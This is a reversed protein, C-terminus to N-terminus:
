ELIELITDLEEVDNVLFYRCNHKLVEQEFDKQAQSQRGKSSKCEIFSVRCFPMTPSEIIARYTAKVGAGQFVVYDATGKPAGKIRRRTEGRVEIFDGANLRLFVLQGQNQAYQLRDSVAKKVSAEPILIKPM